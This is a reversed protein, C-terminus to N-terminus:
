HSNMFLQLLKPIFCYIASNGCVFHIFSFTEWLVSFKYKFFYFVFFEEGIM